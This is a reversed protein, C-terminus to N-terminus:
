LLNAEKESGSWMALRYEHKVAQLLLVLSAGFILLSSKLLLGVRSGLTLIMMGFISWFVLEGYMGTLSSKGSFASRCFYCDM